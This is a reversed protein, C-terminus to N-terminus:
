YHCHYERKETYESEKRLILFVQFHYIIFFHRVSYPIQQVGTKHRHSTISKTKVHRVSGRRGKLVIGCRGKLVIGRRGKPVIGRRGKPVIGRRGKPVLVTFHM